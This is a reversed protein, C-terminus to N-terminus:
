GLVPVAVEYSHSIRTCISPRIDFCLFCFSTASTSVPNRCVVTMDGDDGVYSRRRRGSRRRGETYSIGYGEIVGSRTSTSGFIYSNARTHVRRRSGTSAETKRERSNYTTSRPTNIHRWGHTYGTGM